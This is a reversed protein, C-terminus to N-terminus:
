YETKPNDFGYLIAYAWVGAQRWTAMWDQDLPKGLLGNKVQTQLGGPITFGTVETHPEKLVFVIKPKSNLYVKEDVIGCGIIQAREEKYFEKYLHELRTNIM